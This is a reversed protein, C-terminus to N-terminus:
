ATASVADVAGEAAKRRAARAGEVWAYLTPLVILTLLTATVLGGIVVVALPRQLEAGPGTAFLMPGLGFVTTLATMALARLRLGSAELVAEEPGRGAARLQRIFSVLVTGNEVAIGFLAIFGIAASVSLDADFLVLSAVGGALAFPLNVLVLAADRLSGFAALLLAFIVLLSLPVVVALRAMAREQNEFTGGYSLWYGDPLADVIAALGRRADAVFSGLDRGRVNAEVVVRRMGDERSVQAPAEVERVAAVRGLPVRAGSPTPLLLRELADRDRRAALPYRVLIGFRRQEDVLTSVVVGGVAAEVLENVDGVSLGWRQLQRRDPVVEIQRFGATTEVKVDAAGDIGGLVAAIDNARDRLTDLDPGFVKVALDSKVGSVLENVRLAIPQSFALRQGPLRGLDAALAAVLDAKTRGTNWEGEPRLMVLVDSQEPGMPDESIEPRGTKSVVTEVEPFALIRKEMWTATAVSGELAASPLRVVNIAIAGEDLDPLFETGLGPLLALAGGLLAVAAALTVLRHRFCRRLLGVYAASLRDGISARRRPRTRAPLLSGLAPVVTFALVLSAAMAFVMTLALPRFLKGEMGELTLLPVFVLVIVLVAFVVPRAVEKVAAAAVVRADADPGALARHRVLNEMVVISADVIMGIAVALGGLSMLNATVGELDMLVFAFLATLPLSLAVVLAARLDGLFLLLVLVVFAGGQLLAKGVTNVSAEVLQTRDYFVELAVGEPLAQRVRPLVDKVEAVVDRANGGRLMIVSGGVAEGGGDRTLAGQRTQQGERVDAVAALTVATGDPARLVIRRLDEASTALGLSRVYTQEWGHVLFSGGANANGDQVARIVDGLALHYALLAKPEVVVHLQRVFGGVGSVENVGPLARLQPAVIWDQMTRLETLSHRDSRLTYQFVEGLGTSVPGLAPAVGTPLADRVGQLREFVQQRAFYVDVDDRFVVVVQSLGAKSLSRVQEVGPLGGMATEVPFTVQQEVDLPTLGEAESLVMVQVNTVDPFADIPLRQWAAVGAAVLVLGGLLVLVRQRLVLAIPGNM